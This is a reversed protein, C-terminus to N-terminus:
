AFAAGRLAPDRRLSTGQFACLNGPPRTYGYRSTRVAIHSKEVACSELDTDGPTGFFERRMNNDVGIVTHGQRDFYEVAESGILGSSGTVLITQNKM